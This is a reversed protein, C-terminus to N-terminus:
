NEYNVFDEKCKIGMYGLLDQVSKMMKYQRSLEKQEIMARTLKIAGGTVLYCYKGREDLPFRLAYLRFLSPINGNSRGYMKRRAKSREDFAMAELLVFRDDLNPHYELLQNKSCNIVDVIFRVASKRAIAVIEELKYDKWYDDSSIRNRNNEFFEDLYEVDNWQKALKSFVDEADGEYHVSYLADKVVTKIKM